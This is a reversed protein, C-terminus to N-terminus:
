VLLNVYIIDKFKFEINLFNELASIKSKNAAKSESINESIMHNVPFLSCASKTPNHTGEIRHKPINRLNIFLSYYSLYEVM